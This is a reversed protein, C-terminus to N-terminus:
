PLNHICQLLSQIVKIKNESTIRISKLINKVCPMLYPWLFTHKTTEIEYFIARCLSSCKSALRHPHLRLCSKCFNPGCQILISPLIVLLKFCISHLLNFFKIPFHFWINFRMIMLKWQLKYFSQHTFHLAYLQVLYL